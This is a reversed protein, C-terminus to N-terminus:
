VGSEDADEKAQTVNRVVEKAVRSVGKRAKYRRKCRSNHEKVFTRADLLFQKVEFQGCEQCFVDWLYDKVQDDFLFDVILAVTEGQGSPLNKHGRVGPL